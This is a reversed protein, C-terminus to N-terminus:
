SSSRVNKTGETPRRVISSPRRVVAVSDDTTQRGDDLVADYVQCIQEIVPDVTYRALVRSRFREGLQARLEPASLLPLIAKALQEPSNPEVLLGAQRENGPGPGLIEDCQGVRTAVSALGSMGYELLSLPFAESLSSLVGIDCARLISSVNAQQGLLTINQELHHEAIEKRIEELHTPDPHAGVLLLHAQPADQVLMSMARILALHGKQPRLNAVCVIRSGARGPLSPIPGGGEPTIVFNPVYWVRSAPVRLRDRSWDALQENVAIVGRTRNVPLRFRWAPREGMACKGYHDHWIVAPHPPFLSAAIATYLSTSHAHLLSINHQRVYAVLRRIAKPDVTRSRNLCLRGVDEAVSGALPGDQRTTCLHVQFRDRPLNNVVNVAVRETGGAALTDTIHMVGIRSAPARDIM